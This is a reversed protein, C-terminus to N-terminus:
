RPRQLQAGWGLVKAAINGHWRALRASPSAERQSARRADLQRHLRDIARIMEPTLAEVAKMAAPRGVWCSRLKMAHLRFWSPADSLEGRGDRFHAVWSLGDRVYIAITDRESLRVTTGSIPIFPPDEVHVSM